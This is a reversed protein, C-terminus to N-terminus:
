RMQGESIRGSLTALFAVLDGRETATLHLPRIRRDLVPNPQGGRDYYEVVDNLTRFSGDHMYPATRVVERLTPTKFAGRDEAKGTVAARGLDSPVGSGARTAPRWAVGTNHFQEDSLTPGRHCLWCNAKGLFLELGRRASASMADPERDMARDFASDGAVITRVFSALARALDDPNPEKGFAAHFAVRYSSVSAIRQVVDSVRSGLELPNRIPELAQEELSSARGDWFFSGGYGRNVLTPVNRTGPRGDIGIAVQRNNAFAHAADHCTACSMSRTRSLLPDFFLRRGLAIKAPTEPNDAPVPMYLDLGRPVPRFMSRSDGVPAAAAALVPAIWPVVDDTHVPATRTLTAAVTVTYMITAACARRQKM